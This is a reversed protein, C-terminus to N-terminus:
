LRRASSSRGVFSNPPSTESRPLRKPLTPLNTAFSGSRPKRHPARAQDSRRYYSSPAASAKPGRWSRLIKIRNLLRFKASRGRCMRLRFARRHAFGAQTSAVRSRRPCRHPLIQCRGPRPLTEQRGSLRGGGGRTRVGLAPLRAIAIERGTTKRMVRPCECRGRRVAVM